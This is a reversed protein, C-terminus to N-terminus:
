LSHMLTKARGIGAKAFNVGSEAQRYARGRARHGTEVHGRQEVEEVDREVKTPRGDKFVDIELDLGALSDAKQAAIAGALGCQHLHNGAFHLRVGAIHGTGGSRNVRAEGLLHRGIHGAGHVVDHRRTQTVIGVVVLLVPLAIDPDFVEDDVEAQRGFPFEGRKGTPELAPHQQGAGQGALGVQEQEVLRRVVEIEFGDEPELFEQELRFGRKEEDGM